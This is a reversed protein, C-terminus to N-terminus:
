MCVYLICLIYYLIIYVNCIYMYTNTVQNRSTPMNSFSHQKPFVFTRSIAIVNILWCPSIVSNTHLFYGKITDFSMWDNNFLIIIRDGNSRVWIRFCKCNVSGIIGPHIRLLFFETSEKIYLCIWNLLALVKGCANYHVSLFQWFLENM